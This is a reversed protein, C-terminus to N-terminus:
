YNAERLFDGLKEVVANCSGPQMGNSYVAVVVCKNTTCICVGSNEKGRGYITHEGKKVFTYKVGNVTVGHSYFDMPSEKAMNSLIKTVEEPTSSFGPSRAWATGDLGHISAAAVAKSQMLSSDVYTQWSM